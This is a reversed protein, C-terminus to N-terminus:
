CFRLVIYLQWWTLRNAPHLFHIQKSAQTSLSIMTPLRKITLSYSIRDWREWFDLIPWSTIFTIFIFTQYSLATELDQKNTQSLQTLKFKLIVLSVSVLLDCGLAKWLIGHDKDATKGSITFWIDHQGINKRWWTLRLTSIWRENKVTSHATLLPDM